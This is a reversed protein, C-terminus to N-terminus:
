FSLSSGIGRIWDITGDATKDGDKCTYGSTDKCKHSGITYGGIVNPGAYWINYFARLRSLFFSYFVKIRQNNRSKDEIELILGLDYYCTCYTVEKITGGYYDHMVSGAASKIKIIGSFCCALILILVIFTKLLKNKNIKYNPM